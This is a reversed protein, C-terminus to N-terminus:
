PKKIEELLFKHNYFLKRKLMKKNQKDTIEKIVIELDESEGKIEVTAKFKHKLVTNLEDYRDTETRIFEANRLITGLKRVLSFLDIYRGSKRVFLDHKLTHDIGIMGVEIPWGTEKNVIPDKL